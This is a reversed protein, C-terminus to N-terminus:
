LMSSTKCFIRVWETIEFRGSHQLAAYATSGPLLLLISSVSEGTDGKFGPESVRKELTYPDRAM